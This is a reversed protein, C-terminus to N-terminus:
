GRQRESNWLPLVTAGIRFRVIGCITMIVQEYKHPKLRFRVSAMRFIKVLRILHEVFIRNSAMEKNKEKQFQSLEGQNPKKTPTKISQEAQYAKDGKFRQNSSFGKQGERFLSIDSRPGPQGAIVDVIDQGSPLVILQNKFTHNKQKGSYYKKQEKYEGPRERPQECSDVILEYETLIEQVIEYDSANKKCIWTFKIAFTRTPNSVLLQIYWKCNIWESWVSYGTISLNDVTEFIDINFSNARRPITKGPAVM